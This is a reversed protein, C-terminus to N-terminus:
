SFGGRLNETIMEMLIHWIGGGGGVGSYGLQGLVFASVKTFYLQQTDFM